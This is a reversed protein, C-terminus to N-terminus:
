RDSPTTLTKAMYEWVNEFQPFLTSGHHQKTPFNNILIHYDGRIVEGPKVRLSNPKSMNMLVVCNAIQHHVNFPDELNLFAFFRSPPTASKRALWPAPKHLDDMYDQPGSFMLVRDVRFLKGIYAAHGAGQSHGAVMIRSWVPHGNALFEDWGGGPDHKVLYVLLKQFRNLISNAPNVQITASVPDGTVIAERYRGFSTSDLSHARSVAVVNDEYDLSIAHYGWQAFASDIPLSGTAKSKTGVLFLFLCHRPAAQPDYVAIHPGHVTVIASDTQHPDVRLVKVEAHLNANGLFLFMLATCIGVVQFRLTNEIMSNMKAILKKSSLGRGKDPDIATNTSASEM